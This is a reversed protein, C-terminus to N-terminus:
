VSLVEKETPFMRNRIEFGYGFKTNTSAYKRNEGISQGAFV